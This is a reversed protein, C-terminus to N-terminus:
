SQKLTNELTTANTQNISVYTLSTLRHSLVPLEVFRRALPEVLLRRGADLLVGGNSKAKQTGRFDVVVFQDALRIGLM